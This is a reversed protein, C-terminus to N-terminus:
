LLTFIKSNFNHPYIHNLTIHVYKCIFWVMFLKKLYIIENLNMILFFMYSHGSKFQRGYITNGNVAMQSKTIKCDIWINNSKGRRNGWEEVSMPQETNVHVWYENNIHSQIFANIVSISQYPDFRLDDRQLLWWYCDQAAWNLEKAAMFQNFRYNNSKFGSKMLFECLIIKKFLTCEKSNDLAFSRGTEKVTIKTSNYFAM